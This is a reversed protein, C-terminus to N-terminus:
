DSGYGFAELIKHPEEGNSVANTVGRIEKIIDVDFSDLKDGTVNIYASIEQYSTDQLKWSIGRLEVFMPPMDPLKLDPHLKGIMRSEAELRDRLAVGKKDRKSLKADM